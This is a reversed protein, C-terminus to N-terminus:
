QCTVLSASGGKLTWCQGPFEVLGKLDGAATLEELTPEPEGRVRRVAAAREILRRTCEVAAQRAQSNNAGGLFQHLGGLSEGVARCSASAKELRDAFSRLYPPAGGRQVAKRFHHAAKEPNYDSFYYVLGRSFPLMASAPLAEEGRSLLRDLSAAHEPLAMLFSSTVFYVSEFEPDLATAADAWALLHPARQELFTGSGLRQVIMLWALDAAVRRDGVGLLLFVEAPPPPGFSADSQPPPLQLISLVTLGVGVVLGAWWGM